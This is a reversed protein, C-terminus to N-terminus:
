LEATLVDQEVQEATNPGDAQRQRGGAPVKMAELHATAPQEVITAYSSKGAATNLVALM